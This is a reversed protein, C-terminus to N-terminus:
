NHTLIIERATYGEVISPNQSKPGRDTVVSVSGERVPQAANLCGITISEFHICYIRVLPVSDGYFYM